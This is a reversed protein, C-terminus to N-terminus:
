YIESGVILKICERIYVNRKDLDYACEKMAGRTGGLARAAGRTGVPVFFFSILFPLLEVMWFTTVRRAAASSSSETVLFPFPRTSSLRSFSSCAIFLMSVSSSPSFPPTNLARSYGAVVLLRM